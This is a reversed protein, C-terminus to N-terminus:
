PEPQADALILWYRDEQLNLASINRLWSAPTWGPSRRSGWVSVPARKSCIESLRLTCVCVCLGKVM